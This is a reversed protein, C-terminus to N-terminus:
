VELAVVGPLEKGELFELSAGGGTSVHSVKKELGFHAIAAASDGGGVITTGGNATLTVLSEAVSRTGQEFNSMEFVGMPGNWVVTKAQTIISNFNAITAPGIDMGIDESKINDISVIKYISDNAFKDAVVVDTPLILQVNQEKAKNLLSTALEVKDAELLSKGIELGMAKYFTFIMGGGILISDCKNFLSNIVDIKGSIKSGGMVAVFPKDPKNLAAGLYKLEKMMLNGAYKETFLTAIAQTSSHARHASGFADNIYCDGLSALEKAFNLDNAEEEPHFRLNELLVIGGKDVNKIAQKAVEGICNNSFTVKYGFHEKLYSAVPALSYEPSVKGKPRGLHSMLIPIGGKDIVTDITSLSEIIRKDDSINGKKDMPVNLDVRILVRKNEFSVDQISKIM